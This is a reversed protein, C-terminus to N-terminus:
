LRCISPWKEALNAADCYVALFRKNTAEVESELALRYEEENVCVSPPQPAIPMPVSLITSSKAELDAIRDEYAAYIIKIEVHKIFLPNLYFPRFTYNLLNTNTSM